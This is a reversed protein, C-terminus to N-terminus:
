LEDKVAKKAVRIWKGLNQAKSVDFWHSQAQPHVTQNFVLDRDTLVKTAGEKAWASGTEPDVMLKGYYLYRAYPGPYVITGGDVQTRNVLSKTLAPVFPETDKMAQVSVIHEAKTCSQAIRDKVATALGSADIHFSLAM